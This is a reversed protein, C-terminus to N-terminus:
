PRDERQQTTLNVLRVLFLEMELSIMLISSLKYVTLM